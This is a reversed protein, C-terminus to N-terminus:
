AHKVRDKEEAQKADNWRTLNSLYGSVRRTREVKEESKNKYKVKIKDKNDEIEEISLIEINDPTTNHKKAFYEKYKDFNNVEEM